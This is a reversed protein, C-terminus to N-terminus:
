KRDDFLDLGGRSPAPEQSKASAKLPPAPTSAESNKAAAAPPPKRGTSTRSPGWRTRPATSLRTNAAVTPVVKPVTAGDALGADSPPDRVEAVAVQPSASRTVTPAPPPEAAARPPSSSHQTVAASPASEHLAGDSDLAARPLLWAAVGAGALVLVGAGAGVALAVWRRRPQETHVPTSRAFSRNTTAHPIPSAATGTPLVQGAGLTTAAPAQSVLMSFAESMAGASPFRENPDKALAREAWEDFGRPVQSCESPKPPPENCIKILLDGLAQGIFPRSGVVCEYVIVGLAWLDSRYDVARHGRAQEPSVYYPTGLLTGTATKSGTSPVEASETVKAIGFDLVKTVEVDGERVLFINDPKLDRHVIGRGHAYDIARAAEALIRVAETLSLKPQRELRESLSEGALLEMAIYPTDSEVGFDFVQVIHTSRLAAASQAELMFRAVLEQNCAYASSIFKVAIPSRLTLHEARWVAGM